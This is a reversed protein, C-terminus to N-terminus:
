TIPKNIKVSQFRNGHRKAEQVLKFVMLMGLCYNQLGVNLLDENDKQILGIHEFKLHMNEITYVEREKSELSEGRRSGAVCRKVRSSWLSAFFSQLYPITCPKPCEGDTPKTKLWTYILDKKETSIFLWLTDWSEITFVFLQPSHKSLALHFGPVASYM